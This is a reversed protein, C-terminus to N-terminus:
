ILVELIVNNSELSIESWNQVVSMIIFVCWRRCAIFQFACFIVTVDIIDRVLSWKSLIDLKLDFLSVLPLNYGM